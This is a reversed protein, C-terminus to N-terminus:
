PLALEWRHTHSPHRLGIVTSVQGQTSSPFPQSPFTSCGAALQTRPMFHM